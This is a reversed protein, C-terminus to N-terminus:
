SEDTVWAIEGVAALLEGCKEQQALSVAQNAVAVTM